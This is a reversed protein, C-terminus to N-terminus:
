GNKMFDPLDDIEGQDIIIMKSEVPPSDTNESLFSPAIPLKVDDTVEPEKNLLKKMLVEAFNERYMVEKGNDILANIDISKDVIIDYIYQDISDDCFTYHVNVCNKQGIRNCRDIAQNLEAPTFPFNLFVVDSANVLNIGVGAAVMNGLFIMCDEDQIFRQIRQDRTYGDVSGDIKVCSKGYHRELENLPEKYSGFVVVKKETDIISDIIEKVGKLKAKSTIINLSHLNGTLSGIDKQQSLEEIIKNYEDRYDDMEFRYSMFIKDPLDLCEEKTKRIMFNALKRNLEQLNRGGTVRDGGRGKTSITYEDTFAKYSRGLEHGILKMYAYVDNVRNKVPTGSLLTIKADPSGDVIQKINRFRQSTHNKLGHAEDLIIHDFPFRILEPGFKGLIDYNIVVFREIFARITRKRSTDLITFYLENFGFGVLDRYWNWKVAQPAVILTRKSQWMRSMSASVITKGLGMDFALFNYKRYYMETVGESQHKYFKGFYPLRANSVTLAHNEIDGYIKEINSYFVDRRESESPSESFGKFCYKIFEFLARKATTVPDCTIVGTEINIDFYYCKALTLESDHWLVKQFKVKNDQTIQIDIM